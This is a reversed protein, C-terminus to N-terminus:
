GSQCTLPRTTQCDVRPTEGRAAETTRLPPRVARDPNTKSKCPTTNTDGLFFV